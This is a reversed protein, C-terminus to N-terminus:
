QNYHNWADIDGDFGYRFVDEDSLEITESTMKNLETLYNTFFLNHVGESQYDSCLIALIRGGEFNKNYNHLIAVDRSKYNYFSLRADLGKIYYITPFIEGRGNIMNKKFSEFNSNSILDTNGFNPLIRIKDYNYHTKGEFNKEYHELFHKTFGEKVKDIFENPFAIDDLRRVMFRRDYNRHMFKLKM